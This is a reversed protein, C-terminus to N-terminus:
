KVLRKIIELFREPTTESKMLHEAAGAKLTEKKISEDGLNSFIIVPISQLRPDQKIEKLLTIGMKESLDNQHATKDYPLILDLVIIDPQANQLIIKGSKLDLASLITYTRETDLTLAESFLSRLLDDDEIFLITASKM